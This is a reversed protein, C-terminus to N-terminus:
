ITYICTLLLWTCYNENERLRAIQKVLCQTYRMETEDVLWREQEIAQVSALVCLRARMSGLPEAHETPSM